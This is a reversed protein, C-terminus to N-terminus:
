KFTNSNTVNKRKPGVECSADAGWGPILDPGEAIFCPTEVM